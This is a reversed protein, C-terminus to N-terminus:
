KIKAKIRDLVWQYTLKDLRSHDPATGAPFNDMLNPNTTDQLEPGYSATINAGDSGPYGLGGRGLYIQKPTDSNYDDGEYEGFVAPINSGPTSGPQDTPRSKKNVEFGKGFGFGDNYLDVIRGNVSESMAHMFEHITIMKDGSNNYFPYITDAFSGPIKVDPDHSYTKKDRTYSTGSGSSTTFWASMRNWKTDATVCDLVDATEKYNKLFDPLLKPRDRSRPEMIFSTDASQRLLATKAGPKLTEDFLAWLRLHPEIDTDRFVDETQDFLTELINVVKKHFDPRKTMIPDQLFPPTDSESGSKQISPNAIVGLTYHTTEDGFPIVTKISLPPPDVIRVPIEDCKPDGDESEVTLTAQGTPIDPDGNSGDPFRGIVIVYSRMFVKGTEKELSFNSGDACNVVVSDTDEFDESANVSDKTFVYFDGRVIKPLRVVVNVVLDVM